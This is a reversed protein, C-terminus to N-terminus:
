LQPSILGTENEFWHKVKVMQRERLMPDYELSLAYLGARHITLHWAGPLLSKVTLCETAAEGSARSAQLPQVKPNCEAWCFSEVQKHHGSPPLASM